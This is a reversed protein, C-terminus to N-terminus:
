AQDTETSYTVVKARAQGVMPSMHMTPPARPSLCLGGTPRATSSRRFMRFTIERQRGYIIILLVRSEGSGLSDEINYTCIQHHAKNQASRRVASGRLSSSPDSRIQVRGNRRNGAIGVEGAIGRTAARIGIAGSSGWLGHHVVEGRPTPGVGLGVGATTEEFPEHGCAETSPVINTCTHMQSIYTHMTHFSWITSMSLWKDKTSLNIEYSQTHLLIKLKEKTSLNTRKQTDKIM